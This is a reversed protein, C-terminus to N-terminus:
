QIKEKKGTKFNYYTVAVWGLGAGDKSKKENKFYSYVRVVKVKSSVAFEFNIVDKEGPEIDLPPKFIKDRECISPWSFRDEKRKVEELADNVQTAALYGNEKSPVIPLIQQVRIISKKVLLITNGANTLGINVYMLNIKDSLPIHSVKQEIKAHPYSKREQVFLTYTWYGGVIIASITAISAITEFFDKFNITKLWDILKKFNKKM